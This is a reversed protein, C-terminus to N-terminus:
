IQCCFILVCGSPGAANDINNILLDTNPCPSFPLRLNMILIFVGHAIVCM